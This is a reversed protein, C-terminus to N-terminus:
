EGEWWADCFTGQPEKEKGEVRGDCTSWSVACGLLDQLNGMDGFGVPVHCGGRLLSERTTGAM